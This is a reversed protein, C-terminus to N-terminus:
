RDPAATEREEEEEQRASFGKRRQLGGTMPLTYTLAHVFPFLLLQPLKLLASQSFVPAPPSIPSCM